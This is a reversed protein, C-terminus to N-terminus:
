KLEEFGCEPVSYIASCNVSDKANKDAGKSTLLSVLQDRLDLDGCRSAWHLATRGAQALFAIEDISSSLSIRSSRSVSFAGVFVKVNM